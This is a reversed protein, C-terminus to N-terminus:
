AFILSSPTAAMSFSTSENSDSNPIIVLYCIVLAFHMCVTLLAKTRSFPQSGFKLSVDLLRVLIVPIVGRMIAEYSPDIPLM